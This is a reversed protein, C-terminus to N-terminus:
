TEIDEATKMELDVHFQLGESHKKNQLGLMDLSSPMKLDSQLTSSVDTYLRRGGCSLSHLSHLTHLGRESTAVAPLLLFIFHSHRRWFYYELM